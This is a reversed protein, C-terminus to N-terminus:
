LRPLTLAAPGQRTRPPVPPSPLIHCHSGERGGRTREIGVLELQHFECAGADVRVGIRAGVLVPDVGHTRCDPGTVPSGEDADVEVVEGSSGAGLQYCDCGRPGLTRPVDAMYDRDAVVASSGLGWASAVPLDEEVVMGV